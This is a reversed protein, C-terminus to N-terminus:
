RGTEPSEKTAYWHLPLTEDDIEFEVLGDDYGYIQYGNEALRAYLSEVDGGHQGLRDVRQGTRPSHVEILWRVAERELLSEAGEVVKLEAGEVDLKVFDPVEHETVLSDIPEVDVTSPEGDLREDYALSNIGSGETTDRYLDTQRSENSVALRHSDVNEVRNLELNKRLIEYNGPEPEFARVSVAQAASRLSFYGINAGVDWFVADRTEEVVFEQTDDNWSGLRKPPVYMEFEGFDYQGSAYRNYVNTITEINSLREGSIRNAVRGIRRVIPKVSSM